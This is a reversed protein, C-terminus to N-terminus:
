VDKKFIEKVSKEGYGVLYAVKKLERAFDVMGTEDSFRLEYENGYCKVTIEIM